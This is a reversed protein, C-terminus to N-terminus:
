FNGPAVQLCTLGLSRWLEVVQDRDDLIFLVNYTDKIHAEYLEKKVISDKRVDDEQRMYLQYSLNPIRDALNNVIWEQTQRQFKGNRGSLFIKSIKNQPLLELIRAVPENLTDKSFDRDYPDADGFLALTGDLDCIVCDPLDPNYEQVIPKQALFQKHMGRIVKEGVSSARKLDRAICEEIPVHTFDKVEFDVGYSATFVRWMEENKPSLNTDDIIVNHLGGLYLAVIDKELKVIFKENLKSWKGDDIMLRLDDRNVRKYGKERVMQKAWTSKGSAPLGRLLIVKM